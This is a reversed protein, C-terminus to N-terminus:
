ENIAKFINFFSDCKFSCPEKDISNRIIDKLDAELQNIQPLTQSFLKFDTCFGSGNRVDNTQSLTRTSIGYLETILSDAVARYAVKILSKDDEINPPQIVEKTPAYFAEKKLKADIISKIVAEIPVVANQRINEEPSLSQILEVAENYNKKIFCCAAKGKAASDKSQKNLDIALDFEEESKKYDEIEFYIEGLNRHADPNDPKLELSKLTSALAQDLNGLNKYISGLNMHADPNDPKLELSKLTSALAKDLDGLDKYLNGLNLHAIPHNPNLEIAKLYLSIAEQPRGSNKCIIGLNSFIAHHSFGTNIAEKYNKEANRLDGRKHHDIASKLLSDGSIQLKQQARKKKKGKQEGFGAMKRRSYSCIKPWRELKKGSKEVRLKARDRRWM